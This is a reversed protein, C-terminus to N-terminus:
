STWRSFATHPGQKSGSEHSWQLFKSVSIRHYKFFDIDKKKTTIIPSTRIKELHVRFYKLIFPFCEPIPKLIIWHLPSLPPTAPSAMTTAPHPTGPTTHPPPQPSLREIQTYKSTRLTLHKKLFVQSPFLRKLYITKLITWSTSVYTRSSKFDNCYKIYGPSRNYLLTALFISYKSKIKFCSFHLRM